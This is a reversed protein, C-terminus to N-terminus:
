NKFPAKHLKIPRPFLEQWHKVDSFTLSNFRKRKNWFNKGISDHRFLRTYQCYKQFRTLFDDLQDFRYDQYFNSLDIYSVDTSSTLYLEKVSVGCLSTDFLAMKFSDLEEVIKDIRRSEQDFSRELFISDLSYNHKKYADIQEVQYLIQSYLAKRDNKFDHVSGVFQEM